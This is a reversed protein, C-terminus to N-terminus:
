DKCLTRPSGDVVLIQVPFFTPLGVLFQVESCCLGCCEFSARGSSRKLELIEDESTALILVDSVVLCSVGLLLGESAFDKLRVIIATGSLLVILIFVAVAIFVPPNVGGGVKITALCCDEESSLDRWDAGLPLLM